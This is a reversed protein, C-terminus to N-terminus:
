VIKFALLYMQLSKIRDKSKFKKLLTTVTLQVELKANFGRVKWKDQCIKSTDFHSVIWTM